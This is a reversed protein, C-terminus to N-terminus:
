RDTDDPRPSSTGTVTSGTGKDMSNETGTDTDAGTQLDPLPSASVMATPMPPFTATTDPWPSSAVNGPDTMGGCASLLLSLMLALVLYVFSRKM